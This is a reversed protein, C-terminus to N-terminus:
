EDEGFDTKFKSDKFIRPQETNKKVTEDNVQKVVTSIDSATKVSKLNEKNVTKNVKISDTSKSVTQVTKAQKVNDPQKPKTAAKASETKGTKIEPSKMEPQKLKTAAKASETKGTKIEPSKMESQKLKTAAKASETKGTKIEPSKMESQKLKTAAKASETKGTKIEPSKMEPQKLKTAAKASETKGAKIGSVKTEPQKNSVISSESNVFANSSLVNTNANDSVSSNSTSRMQESVDSSVNVNANDNVSSNSTNRMQENVDSSVNMNANDNISSNSTSRMQENVDSSVNMNANGNISSNSTSRMQENLDSSVNMNANDNVSSNSTNRMQESVDSSVNMNANDNVSSNSTNRMQENVDSSVNMESYGNQLNSNSDSFSSANDYAEYLNQNVADNVSSDINPEQRAGGFNRNDNSADNQSNIDPENFSSMSNSNNFSNVNDTNINPESTAGGSKANNVSNRLTNIVGRNNSHNRSRANKSMNHQMRSQQVLRMFSMVKQAGASMGMDYGYIKQIVSPGDVVIMACMFVLIARLLGNDFHSNIYAMCLLYVKLMIPIFLLIIYAQFFYELIKITKQGSALEVSHLCAMIRTTVIEFIMRLVAYASFTFILINALLFLMLQFFHIYYRYYYPPDFIDFMGKNEFENWVINYNDDIDLYHSFVSKQTADDIKKPNIHKTPDVAKIVTDVDGGGDALTSSFNFGSNGICQLDSINSLVVQNTMSGDLLDNKTAILGKNLATIITPMVFIIALGILINKLLPPKKESYMLYIGIAVFSLTLLPVIWVSFKSVFKKFADTDIINIMEYAANFLQECLNSLMALFKVIGWGISRLIDNWISSTSFYEKHTLIIEKFDV